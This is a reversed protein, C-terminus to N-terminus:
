LDSNEHSVNNAARLILFYSQFVRNVAVSVM